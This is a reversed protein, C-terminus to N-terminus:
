NGGLPENYLFTFRLELYPGKFHKPLPPYGAYTIAAWAAKDLSVDGSPTVLKMSGPAVDGNPLIKFVISVAGQKNLPPRAVEPIIPYWARKTDWIVRQLYPGFNVGMTNSLIDVAGQEGPHNSPAGPGMAGSYQGPQAAARAMERLQQGPSGNNVNFNPKPASPAAMMKATSSLPRAPPKPQRTPAASEAREVPRPAPQIAAREAPRQTPRPAPHGRREMAELQQITKKTLTPHPSEATHNKNSIVNTPKKPKLPKINSPTYLYTMSKPHKMLLANENVVRVRQHFIYKPGYLIFWLLLLHFILAIWIKERLSAWNRSGELDEIVSLLGDTDYGEYRSTRDGRRLRPPEPPAGQPTGPTNGPTPASTPVETTSM